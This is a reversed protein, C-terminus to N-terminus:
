QGGEEEAAKVEQNLIETEEETKGDAMRKSDSLPEAQGGDETPAGESYLGEKVESTELVEETVPHQPMQHQEKLENEQEQNANSNLEPQLEEAKQETVATEVVM